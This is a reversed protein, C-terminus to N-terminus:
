VSLPTSTQVATIIITIVVDETNCGRSLDNMPKNLGQTIPGFAKANGFRQVLKYGINGSNLDPFVLINADGNLKSNPFKQISVSPVLAADVQMEGEILLEPRLTKVMSTASKVKDVTEGGASGNTSFSLMAIKPDTNTFSKFSDATQIAIDALEIDKPDINLGCDAFFLLGNDGLQTNPSIIAFFSSVIKNNPATKIIQLAPKLVHSTPCNAGAVMGDAIGEKVLMTGFYYPSQILQDADQQTLGKDKRLEFLKKSLSKTDSYNKPDIITVGDINAKIKKAQDLIKNEEGIIIIKAIKKSIIISAAEIIRSDEGEALVITKQYEKAKATLNEIFNTM